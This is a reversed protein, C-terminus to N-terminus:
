SKERYCFSFLSYKKVKKVEARINKRAITVRSVIEDVVTDDENTTLSLSNNLSDDLSDMSQLAATLLKIKNRLSKSELLPVEGLETEVNQATQKWKAVESLFQERKSKKEYELTTKLLINEFNSVKSIIHSSVDFNSRFSICDSAHKLIQLNNQQEHLQSYFVEDSFNGTLFHKEAKEIWPELSNLSNEYDNWNKSLVSLFTNISTMEGIILQGRDIKKKIHQKINEKEQQPLSESKLYKEASQQFQESFYEIEKTIKKGDILEKWYNKIEDAHKSNIVNQYKESIYHIEAVAKKFNLQLKSKAKRLETRTQKYSQLRGM